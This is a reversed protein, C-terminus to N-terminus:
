VCHGGRFAGRGGVRIVGEWGEQFGAGGCVCVCMERAQDNEGLGWGVGRGM